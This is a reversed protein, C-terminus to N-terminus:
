LGGYTVAGGTARRRRRAESQADTCYNRFAAEYRESARPDYVESDAKGFALHRMWLTLHRHHIPALLPDLTASSATIDELPLRYVALMVTVTEAPQPYALIQAEDEGLVLRRLVGPQSATNSGYPGAWRQVESQHADANMVPVDRGNDARTAHRIYKISPHMPYLSQGPVINLTTVDPTTADALGDTLRCFMTQADNLFEFAEDDSWLYPEAVDHVQTRFLDVVEAPTM